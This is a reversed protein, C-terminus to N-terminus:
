QRVLFSLADNRRPYQGGIACDADVQVSQPRFAPIETVMKSDITFDKNASNFEVAAPTENVTVSEQVTGPKLMANVTVDGRTQVLINEQIIRSFGTSEITVSYTGPDVLDFLYLGTDSTQRVVKVGTNVNLLTVSAGAIVAKSEDTVVGEIRGRYDQALGSAAFILLLVLVWKLTPLVQSKM